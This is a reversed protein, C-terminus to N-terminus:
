FKKPFNGKEFQPIVQKLETVHEKTCFEKNAEIQAAHFQIGVIEHTFTDEKFKAVLQKMMKDKSFPIKCAVAAGIRSWAYNLNPDWGMADPGTFGKDYHYAYANFSIANSTMGGQGSYGDYPDAAIACSLTLLLLCIGKMIHLLM